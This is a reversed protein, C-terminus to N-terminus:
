KDDTEKIEIRDIQWGNEKNILAVYLYKNWYSKDKAPNNASYFKGKIIVNNQDISIREIIDVGDLPEVCMTWRYINFFDCGINRYDELNPLKDNLEDYRTKNIEKICKQYSAIEKYILSDTFHCDKLNKIYKNMNLTAMGTSDAVFLPQYEEIEGQEVVSFYWKYFNVVVSDPSEQALTKIPLLLLYFIIFLHKM